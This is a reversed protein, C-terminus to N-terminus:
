KTTTTKNNNNNYTKKKTYTTQFKMSLKLLSVMILFTQRERERMEREIATDSM